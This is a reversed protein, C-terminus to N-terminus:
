EANAESVDSGGSVDSIRSIDSHLAAREALALSCDPNIELALALAKEAETTWGGLRLSQGAMAYMLEEEDGYIKQLLFSYHNRFISRVMDNKDFLFRALLTNDHCDALYIPFMKLCLETIFRIRTIERSISEGTQCLVVKLEGRFFEEDKSLDHFELGEIWSAYKRKQYADEKLKITEHFIYGLAWDLFKGTLESGPENRFLHHATDKLRWLLGKNMEEGTIHLLTDFDVAGSRDYEQFCAELKQSVLCFDRLVDRTFELRKAIIWAKSM